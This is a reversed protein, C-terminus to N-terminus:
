HLVGIKAVTILSDAISNVTFEYTPGSRQAEVASHGPDICITFIDSSYITCIFFIFFIIVFINRKVM